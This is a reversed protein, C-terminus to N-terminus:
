VIDFDTKEVCFFLSQRVEAAALLSKNGEERSSLTREADKARSAQAEVVRNGEEEGEVASGVADSENLAPPVMSNVPVSSLPETISESGKGDILLGESLNEEKEAGEKRLAGMEGIDKVLAPSEAVTTVDSPPPLEM